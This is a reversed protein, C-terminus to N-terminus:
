VKEELKGYRGGVWDKPENDHLDRYMNKDIRELNDVAEQLWSYSPHDEIFEEKKIEKRLNETKVELLVNAMVMATQRLLKLEHAVDKIADTMKDADFSDIEFM